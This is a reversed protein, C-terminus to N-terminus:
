HLKHIKHFKQRSKTLKPRIQQNQRRLNLKSKISQKQRRLHKMLSMITIWSCEEVQGM